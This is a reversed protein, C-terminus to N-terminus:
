AVEKYGKLYERKFTAFDDLGELQKIAEKTQQLEAKSCDGFFITQDGLKYKKLINHGMKRLMSVDFLNSLHQAKPNSHAKLQARRVAVELGEILAHDPKIGAKELVAAIVEKIKTKNQLKEVAVLVKELVNAYQSGLAETLAVGKRKAKASGMLKVIIPHTVDDWALCVLIANTRDALADPISAGDTPKRPTPMYNTIGVKTKGAFKRMPRGMVQIARVISNQVGLNILRDVPVYDM